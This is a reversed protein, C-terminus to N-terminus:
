GKGEFTVLQTEKLNMQIIKDAVTKINLNNHGKLEVM